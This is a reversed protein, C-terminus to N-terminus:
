RSFAVRELMRDGYVRELQLDPMHIYGIYCDCVKLKCPLKRSLGELGDRYLNGIVQRDKYCRKVRGEGQVYFVDYGAHCDKGLSEYDTVNIDFYPDIGRLYDRDADSYYHPKDKFANIWMYIDEPLSYRLSSLADFANRLGVSGVSFTIGRQYLQQCQRLFKSEETQGPHYTVWFAAKVPNLEATWDLNASLNTQIAVKDVHAMHSLEVIAVRYWRHTLGEGYPNFFISLRHGATEQNRVWEVFTNLQSRDKALTAASDKNKSFPCYPCDYNCSTLSGRYYLTAKM